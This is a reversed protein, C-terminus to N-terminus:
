CLTCLRLAFGDRKLRVWLSCCSIYFLSANHTEGDKYGHNLSLDLTNISGLDLVVFNNNM